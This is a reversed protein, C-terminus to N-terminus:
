YSQEVQYPLSKVYHMEKVYKGKHVIVVYQKNPDFGLFDLKYPVFEGCKSYAQINEYRQTGKDVQAYSYEMRLFPNFRDTFQNRVTTVAFIGIIILVSLSLIIVKKM